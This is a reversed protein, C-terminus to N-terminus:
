TNKTKNNLVKEIIKLIESFKMKSCVDVAGASLLAQNGREHSSVAICPLSPFEGKVYRVFNDGKGDDLDYDVLAVDFKAERTMKIAIEISPMLTVEHNYLFKDTVIKGLHPHNEIFLIKMERNRMIGVYFATPLSSQLPWM